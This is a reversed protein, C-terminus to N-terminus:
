KDETDSNKDETKNDEAAPAEAEEAPAEEAAPAEAEEAPAEEAEPAEAEEAPAEEAAPAEAEAADVEIDEASKAKSKKSLKKDKKRQNRSEENKQWEELLKEIESDSKGQTILHWKYSLGTRKFLSGVSESPIAGDKLWKIVLDEKINCDHNSSVPNFWGLREIERGSRRKSSDIAVIRYFPSKKRGMRKFRIKVAM